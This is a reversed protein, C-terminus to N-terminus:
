RVRYAGGAMKFGCKECVWIGAARRRLKVRGCRPCRYFRQRYLREVEELKRKPKLGYRPGFRKALKLKSVVM